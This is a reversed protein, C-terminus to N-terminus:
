ANPPCTLCVHASPRDFQRALMCCCVRRCSITKAESQVRQQPSGNAPLNHLVLDRRGDLCRRGHQVGHALGQRGCVQSSPQQKTPTAIRLRVHRLAIGLLQVGTITTSGGVQIASHNADAVKAHCYALRCGLNAKPGAPDPATQQSGIALQHLGAGVVPFHVQTFRDLAEVQRWGAVCSAISRKSIRHGAVDQLRDWLSGKSLGPM